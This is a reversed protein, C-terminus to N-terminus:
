EAEQEARKKLRWAWTRDIGLAEGIERPSSIGEALLHKVQELKSEELPVWKWMLRGDKEQLKVDLPGVEEGKVSRSKTFRLGFHCGERPDYNTPRDLCIVTDLSDERGSTGRQQGSKGTHHILITALGRHRMKILWASVSEWEKKSDEDIGNFLTSINDFIVVKIEPASELLDMVAAQASKGSLVLDRNLRHYIIESTLFKLPASPHAGLLSTTRSRLEDLQMEGDVYLVGVPAAVPWKLFPEGTVLSAAVGLGFMTKGVGREGFALALSGKSLWPLYHPRRPLEMMLLERYDVLADTLAPEPPPPAVAELGLRLTTEVDTLEEGDYARGVALQSVDILQRLLAKDRVIRAHYTVNASTPVAEVLSALFAASGVEDLEGRRRLENTITILDVPEGRDYLTSAAAFIKRHADRYFHEPRLMELCKLFAENSQLIAGLVSMEAELNQPPVRAALVRHGNTRSAAIHTM